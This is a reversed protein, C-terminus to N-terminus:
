VSVSRPAKLIGNNLADETGGDEGKEFRNEFILPFFHAGPVPSNTAHIFPTSASTQSRRPCGDRYLNGSFAQEFNTQHTIHTTASRTSVILKRGSFERM